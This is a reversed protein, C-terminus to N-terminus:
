ALNALKSKVSEFCLPIPFNLIDDNVIKPFLKRQSKQGLLMLIESATKSNLIALLAYIDEAEGDAGKIIHLISRNYFAPHDIAACRIVYPMPALIERILIRCGNYREFPQYEALWPGYKLYKGSWDIRYRKLDSGEIYPYDDLTEKKSSHFVHNKVDDPTQPPNGKGTAYVQLAILANFKSTMQNLPKCSTNITDLLKQSRSNWNIPIITGPTSLCSKNKIYTYAKNGLSKLDDAHNLKVHDFKVTKRISVIVTEVSVGEFVPFHLIDLHSLAGNSLFFKRLRRGGRIGLWSNPVILTCIGNDKLLEFARAMFLMYKNPKGCRYSDYIKKLAANEVPSLQEDRSLGYPPNGIICDFNQQYSYSHLESSDAIRYNKLHEPSILSNGSQINKSLDPLDCAMSPCLELLRLVLLLRCIETAENDLDVGFIYNKLITQANISPFRSILESFANLLFIGCGCSPDLITPVTGGSDEHASIDDLSKHVMYSVISKPTYFVGKQKSQKKNLLSERIFGLDELELQELLSSPFFTELQAQNSFFIFLRTHLKESINNIIGSLNDRDNTFIGSHKICCYNLLLLRFALVIPPIESSIRMWPRNSLQQLESLLHRIQSKM